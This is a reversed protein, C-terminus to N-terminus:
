IPPKKACNMGEGITPTARVLETGAANGGDGVFMLSTDLVQPVLDSMYQVYYTFIEDYGNNVNTYNDYATDLMKILVQLTYYALCDSRTDSNTAAASVKDLNDYTWRYDCVEYDSDDGSDVEDGTGNNTYTQNLDV